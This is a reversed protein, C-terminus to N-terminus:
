PLINTNAELLKRKYEELDIRSVKEIFKDLKIIDLINKESQKSIKEKKVKERKMVIAEVLGSLDVDYKEEIYNSTLDYSYFLDQCFEDYSINLLYDKEFFDNYFLYDTILHLFTGKMYDTDIKNENLFAPLFIKTNLHTILTNDNRELTYHSKEKDTALDPDVTGRLFLQENEIHNKEMYKKGVALHISFSAM